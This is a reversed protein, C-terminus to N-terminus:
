FIKKIISQLLSVISMKTHTNNKLITDSTDQFVETSDTSTIRKKQIKEDALFAEISLESM